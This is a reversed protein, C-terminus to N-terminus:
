DFTLSRLVRGATRLGDDGSFFCLIHRTETDAAVFRGIVRCPVDGRLFTGSVSWAPRGADTAETIQYRLGRVDHRDAM